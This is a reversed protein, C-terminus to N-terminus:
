LLIGKYNKIRVGNRNSRCIRAAVRFTGGMVSAGLAFVWELSWVFITGGAGAVVVFGAATVVCGVGTVAGADFDYRL